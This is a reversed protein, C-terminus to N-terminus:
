LAELPEHTVFSLIEDSAFGFAMALVRCFKVQTAEQGRCQPRRSM